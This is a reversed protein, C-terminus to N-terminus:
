PQTLRREFVIILGEVGGPGVRGSVQTEVISRVRWGNASWQNLTKQLDAVNMKDGVLTARLTVVGYEYLEHGQARLAERQARLAEEQAHVAEAKKDTRQVQAQKVAEGAQKVAGMGRSLLGKKEPQQQDPAEPLEADGM